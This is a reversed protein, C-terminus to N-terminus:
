RLPKIIRRLIPYNKWFASGKILWATGFFILATSEFCFTSFAWADVGTLKEYIFFGFMALISALIGWGCVRYFIKRRNFKEEEEITNSAKDPWQFFVWCFVIFCSFLLGAFVFHVSGISQSVENILHLYQTSGDAASRFGRTGTPFAAVGFACYGAFNSVRSEWPNDPKGRYTILFGGL